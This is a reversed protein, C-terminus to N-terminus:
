FRTVLALQAGGFVNRIPGDLGDKRSAFVVAVVDRISKIVMVRYVM